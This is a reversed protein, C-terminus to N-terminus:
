NKWICCLQEELLTGETGLLDLARKCYINKESSKGKEALLSLDRQDIKNVYTNKDKYLAIIGREKKKKKKELYLTM